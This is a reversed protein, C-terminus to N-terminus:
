QAYDKLYTPQKVLRGSRTRMAPKLAHESLAEREHFSGNLNTRNCTTSSAQRNQSTEVTAKILAQSVRSKNLHRRNRRYKQSGPTQVIYSRPTYYKEVVTAQIWKKDHKLSVQDGKDLPPLEKSCHKDYYFKQREKIKQLHQKIEPTGQPKLLEASTPLSTELRRGMLIQAPSLGIGDVPTNRYNLLAEYPDQGKKLLNEITQVAREVEGNSQLYLPSSTTHVFGYSRSFNNFASCAYQPGNDSILEDPIGYRAFQSKLHCIINSSTIDDLKAVEIWKSYYDISLLYHVGNFEFLNCGIKSWPRDPPEHITM